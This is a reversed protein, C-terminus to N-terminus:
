YKSKGVQQIVQALLTKYEQKDPNLQVLKQLPQVADKADNMQLRVEVLGKLAVQNDPEQKLVVQYDLEQMQLQSDQLDKASPVVEAARATNESPQNLSTKILNIAGYASSGFFSVFSVLILIRQRIPKQTQTM